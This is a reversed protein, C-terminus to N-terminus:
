KAGDPAHAHCRTSLWGRDNRMRGPAGCQDCVGESLVSEAISVIEDVITVAGRLGSHYLRLGGLKEKIQGWKVDVKLEDLSGQTALLLDVWGAGISLECDFIGPWRRRLVDPWAEPMLLLRKEDVLWRRSRCEITRAILEILLTRDPTWANKMKHKRRGTPPNDVVFKVRGGDVPVVRVVGTSVWEDLVPDDIAARRAIAYFEAVLPQYGHFEDNAM